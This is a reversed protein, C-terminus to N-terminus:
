GLSTPKRRKPSLAADRAPWAAPVTSEVGMRWTPRHGTAASRQYAVVDDNAMGAFYNYGKNYERVHDLCFNHYQGERMRGKPARYGALQSCGLWECSRAAADDVVPREPAIRIRDFYKSNLNM